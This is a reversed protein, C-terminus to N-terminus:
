FCCYAYIVMLKINPMFIADPLTITCCHIHVDSKTLIESFSNKCINRVYLSFNVLIYIKTSNFLKIFYLKLKFIEGKYHFEKKPVKDVNLTPFKEKLNWLIQKHRTILHLINFIVCGKKSSREPLVFSLSFDCTLIWDTWLFWYYLGINCLM